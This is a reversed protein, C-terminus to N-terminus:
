LTFNNIVLVLAMLFITVAAMVCRFCWSKIVRWQLYTFYISMLTGGFVLVNVLRNWWILPGIEIVLMLTITFVSIYFLLGLIENHIGFTKNHESELVQHCEQGIICVPREKAIRKRILYVTESIGIAALTFLFVHPM